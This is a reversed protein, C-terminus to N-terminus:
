LWKLSVIRAAIGHGGFCSFSTYSEGSILMAKIYRDGSRPVRKKNDAVHIREIVIIGSGSDGVSISVISVINVM